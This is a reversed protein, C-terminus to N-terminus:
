ITEKGWIECVFGKRCREKKRIRAVRGALRMTRSKIVSSIKPSSYLEHLEENRVGRWYGREKVRKCVFIKRLAKKESVGSRHEERLIVSCTECALNCTNRHLKVNINKSPLNSSLM